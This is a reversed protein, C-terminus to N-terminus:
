DQTKEMFNVLSVVLSFADQGAIIFDTYLHTVPLDDEPQM